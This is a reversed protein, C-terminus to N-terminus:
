SIENCAMQFVFRNKPTIIAMQGRRACLRARLIITGRSYRHKIGFIQQVRFAHRSRSSIFLLGLLVTMHSSSNRLKEHALRFNSPVLSNSCSSQLTARRYWNSERFAVPKSPSRVTKLLLCTPRQPKTCGLGKRGQWPCVLLSL